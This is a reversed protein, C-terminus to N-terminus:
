SRQILYVALIIGTLIFTGGGLVPYLILTQQYKIVLQTTSARLILYFLHVGLDKELLDDSFLVLSLNYITYLLFDSYALHFLQNNDITMSEFAPKVWKFMYCGYLILLTLLQLKRIILKFITNWDHFKRGSHGITLFKLEQAQNTKM